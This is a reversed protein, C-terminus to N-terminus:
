VVVEVVEEKPAPADTPRADLFEVRQAHIETTQHELNDKDKWVRTKNSGSIFVKRGKSLYQACNKAQNGWVVVRHWETYQKGNHYENTAVRFNCVPTGSGTERLSVDTGLNGIINTQNM